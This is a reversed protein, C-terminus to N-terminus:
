RTPWFFRPWKTKRVIVNSISFPRNMRFMTDYNIQILRPFYHRWRAFLMLRLYFPSLLSSQCHSRWATTEAISKVIARKMKDVSSFNRHHYVTQQLVGAFPLNVTNSDPSNSKPPCITQSLSSFTRVSCTEAEPPILPLVTRSCHGNQLPWM